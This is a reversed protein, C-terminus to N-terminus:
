QNIWLSNQEKTGEAWAAAFAAEDLHSRVFATIWQLFVKQGLLRDNAVISEFQINIM